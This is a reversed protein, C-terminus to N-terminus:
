RRLRMGSRSRDAAAVAALEVRGKNSREIRAEDEVQNGNGLSVGNSGQSRLGVSSRDNGVCIAVM